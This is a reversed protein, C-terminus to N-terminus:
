LIHFSLVISFFNNPEFTSIKNLKGELGCQAQLLVWLLVLYMILTQILVPTTWSTIPNHAKFTYTYWSCNYQPAQKGYFLMCLIDKESCTSCIYSIGASIDFFPLSLNSCSCKFTKIRQANNNQFITIEQVLLSCVFIIRIRSKCKHWTNYLEWWTMRLLWLWLHQCVTSLLCNLKRFNTHNHILM